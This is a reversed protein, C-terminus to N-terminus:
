WGLRENSMLHKLYKELTEEQTGSIVVVVGDDCEIRNPNDIHAMEEKTGHIVTCKPMKEITM